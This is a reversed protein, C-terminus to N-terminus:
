MPAELDTIFAELIDPFLNFHSFEPIKINVTVNFIVSNSTLLLRILYM